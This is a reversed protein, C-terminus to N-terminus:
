KVIADASEKGVYPFNSWRTQPKRKRLNASKYCALFEDLNGGDRMDYVWRHNDAYAFGRTECNFFLVASQKGPQTFGPPLRLITHLRRQEHLSSRVERGVDGTVLADPVVVAARGRPALSALARMVFRAAQETACAPDAMILDFSGPSDEALGDAGARLQTLSQGVDHLWLNLECLRMASIDVDYATIAGPRANAKEDADEFQYIGARLYLATQVIFGGAGAAPDCVRAGRAPALAEVVAKALAPPTTHVGVECPWQVAARQLVEQFAAAAGGKSGFAQSLEFSRRLDKPEDAAYDLTTLCADIPVAALARAFGAQIQSDDLAVLSDWTARGPEHYQLCAPAFLKVLCDLAAQGREVRALLCKWARDTVTEPDVGGGGWRAWVRGPAARGLGTLWYVNWECRGIDCGM